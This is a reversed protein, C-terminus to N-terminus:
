SALPLEVIACLGIGNRGPELAFSGHHLRVVNRVIALGIGFGQQERRNRDFQRFAGVAGREAATMGCGQDTVEIRYLGDQVSGRVSIPSGRPSFRCANEALEAAVARLWQPSISVAARACELQLDDSRGAREVVELVEDEVGVAAEVAASPDTWRYERLQELRFYQVLKRILTQQRRASDHIARAMERLETASVASPDSEILSAMGLIGNLPTLLEHAWPAALERRYEEAYERLRETLVARKRMVANVANLLEDGSFPKALYDDAGSVMGRRQEIRSNRSTLFVFPLDATATEARLKELVGYGDLVPMEVDCLVIDPRALTIAQLGAQGDAATVARHGAAELHAQVWTRWRSDDEILVVHLAKLTVTPGNATAPLETMM